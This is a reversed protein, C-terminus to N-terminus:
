SIILGSPARPNFRRIRSLSQGSFWKIRSRLRWCPAARSPSLQLLVQRSQSRIALLTDVADQPSVANRGGYVHCGVITRRGLPRGDGADTSRLPQGIVTLRRRRSRRLPKSSPESRVGADSRLGRCNVILKRGCLTDFDLRGPLSPIQGTEKDLRATKVPLSSDLDSLM